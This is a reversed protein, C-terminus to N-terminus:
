YHAHERGVLMRRRSPEGLVPPNIDRGTPQRDSQKPNPYGGIDPLVVPEVRMGTQLNRAQEQLQRNVDQIWASLAHRSVLNGNAADIKSGLDKIADTQQHIFTLAAVTTSIAGGVIVTVFWAIHRLRFKFWREEDVTVDKPPM